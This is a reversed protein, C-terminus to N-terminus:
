GVSSIGYKHSTVSAEGGGTGERKGLGLRFVTTQKRMGHIQRAQINQAFPIM